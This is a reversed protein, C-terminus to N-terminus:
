LFKETNGKESKKKPKAKIEIEPMSEKINETAKKLAELRKQTDPISVFKIILLINIGVSILLIFFLSKCVIYTGRNITVSENLKFKDILRM